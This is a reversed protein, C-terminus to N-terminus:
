QQCFQDWAADMNYTLIDRAQSEVEYAEEQDCDTVSLNYQLTSVRNNLDVEIQEPAFEAEILEHKIKKALFQQYASAIEDLDRNDWDGLTATDIGNVTIKIKM